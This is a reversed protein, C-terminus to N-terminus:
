YAAWPSCFHVVPWGKLVISWLVLDEEMFWKNRFICNWFHLPLPCLNRQKSWIRGSLPQSFPKTPLITKWGWCVFFGPVRSPMNLGQGPLTRSLFLHIGIAWQGPWNLQVLLSWTSSSISDWLSLHSPVLSSVKHQGRVEVLVCVRTVSTVMEARSVCPVM